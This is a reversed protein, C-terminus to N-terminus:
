MLWPLNEFLRAARYSEGEYLIAVIFWFLFPLSVLTYFVFNKREYKMHMFENVILYAKGLSLIIMLIKFMMVPMPIMEWVLVMFALAVEVITIVTLQALCTLISKKTPANGGAGM